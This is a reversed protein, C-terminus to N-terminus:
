DDCFIPLLKANYIAFCVCLIFFSVNSMRQM